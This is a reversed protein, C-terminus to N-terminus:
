YPMSRNPKTGPELEIRNESASIEGLRGSTWMDQHTELMGIVSKRLDADDIHYLSVTTQWDPPASKSPETQTPQPGNFEDAEETREFPLHLVSELTLSAKNPHAHIELPNREAHAIVTGKPLCKPTKCFKFDDNRITRQDRHRCSRERDPSQTATPNCNETRHVRPWCLRVRGTRGDPVDPTDHYKEHTPGHPSPQVHQKRPNETPEITRQYRKPRKTESISKNEHLNRRPRSRTDTSHLQSPNKRM